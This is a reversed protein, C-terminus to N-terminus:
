PRLEPVNGQESRCSIALSITVDPRREPQAAAPCPELGAPFTAGLSSQFPRNDGALLENATTSVPQSPLSHLYHDAMAKLPDPHRSNM